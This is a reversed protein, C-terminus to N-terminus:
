LSLNANRQNLYKANNNPINLNPNGYFSPSNSNNIINMTNTISGNQPIFGNSRKLQSTQPSSNITKQPYVKTPSEVFSSGQSINNLKLPVGTTVKNM